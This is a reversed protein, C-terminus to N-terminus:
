DRREILRAFRFVLDSIRFGHSHRPLDVQTPVHQQIGHVHPEEMEQGCVPPKLVQLSVAVPTGPAEFALKTRISILVVDYVSRSGHALQLQLTMDLSAIVGSGLSVMLLLPIMILVIIALLVTIIVVVITIIALILRLLKLSRILTILM